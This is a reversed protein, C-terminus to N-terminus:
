RLWKIDVVYECDKSLAPGDLGEDTYWAYDSIKGTDENGDAILYVKDGKKFSPSGLIEGATLYDGDSIESGSNEDWWYLSRSIIGEAFIQYVGSERLKAEKQQEKELKEKAEIEALQKLLEQKKTM